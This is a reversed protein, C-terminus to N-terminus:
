WCPDWHGNVEGRDEWFRCFEPSPLFYDQAHRAPNAPSTDPIVDDAVLFYFPHPPRKRHVFKDHKRKLNPPPVINRHALPYGPRVINRGFFPRVRPVQAPRFSGSQAGSRHVPSKKSVKISIAHDAGQIGAGAPSLPAARAGAPIAIGAIVLLIPVVSKKHM